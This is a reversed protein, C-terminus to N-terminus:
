QGGRNEANEADRIEEKKTGAKGPQPLALAHCAKVALPRFHVFTSEAM